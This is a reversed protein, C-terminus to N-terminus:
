IKKKYNKTATYYLFFTKINSMLLIIHYPITTHYFINNSPPSLLQLIIITSVSLVDCFILPMARDQQLGTKNNYETIDMRTRRSETM